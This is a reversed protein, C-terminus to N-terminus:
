RNTKVKRRTATIWQVSDDDNNRDQIKNNNSKRRRRVLEIFSIDSATELSPLMIFTHYKAAPSEHEM